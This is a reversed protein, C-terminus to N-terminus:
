EEYYILCYAPKNIATIQNVLYVAEDEEIEVYDAGFDVVVTEWLTGGTFMNARLYALVGHDKLAPLDSFKSVFTQWQGATGDSSWIGLLIKKIRMTRDAIYKVIQTGVATGLDFLFLTHLEGM